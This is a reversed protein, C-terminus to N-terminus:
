HTRSVPLSETVRGDPATPPISRWSKLTVERVMGLVDAAPGHADLRGSYSLSLIRSALRKGILEPSACVMRAVEPRRLFTTLLDDLELGVSGIMMRAAFTPLTRVVAGVHAEPLEIETSLFSDYRRVLAVMARMDKGAFAELDKFVREFDELTEASYVIFMRDNTTDAIAEIRSILPHDKGFRKRCSRWLFLLDEQSREAADLWIEAFEVAREPDVGFRIAAALVFSTDTRELNANFFRDVTQGDPPQRAVFRARLVFSAEPRDAFESLWDDSARKIAASSPIREIALELLHADTPTAPRASLWHEAASKVFAGDGDALLWACIVFSADPGIPNAELHDTMWRRALDRDAISGKRLWARLVFSANPDRAFLDMWGSVIPRLKTNDWGAALLERLLLFISRNARFRAAYEFIHRRDVEDLHAHRVLLVLLQLAEPFELGYAYRKAYTIYRAFGATVAARVVQRAPLTSNELYADFYVGLAPGPPPGGVTLHRHLVRSISRAFEDSLVDSDGLDISGILELKEADGLAASSFVSIWEPATFARARIAFEVGAVFITPDIQGRVRALSQLVTSFLSRDRAVALVDAIVIPAALGSNRLVNVATQDALVDHLSTWVRASPDFEIWGNEVLSQFVDQAIPDHCLGGLMEDGVPLASFIWLLLRDLHAEPIAQHLLRVRKVVWRSFDAEDILESLDLTQGNQHLHLIFAALMPVGRCVAEGQQSARPDAVRSLIHQVIETRALGGSPRDPIKVPLHRGIVAMDRYSSSRCTALYRLDAGTSDVFAEILEVCEVLHRQNEAYDVLVLVRTAQSWHDILDNIARPTLLSASLVTWGTREALRGVELSLRTKGVGGRGHIIIGPSDTLAELLIDPSPQIPAGELEPIQVDSLEVYPLLNEDLLRRFGTLQTLSLPVLGFPRQGPFWRYLLTQNAVLRPAIQTWDVVRCELGALHAFEAQAAIDTFALQIREILDM